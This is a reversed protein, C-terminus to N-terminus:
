KDDPLTVDIHSLPDAIEKKRMKAADAGVKLFQSQKWGESVAKYSSIIKNTEMTTDQAEEEIEIFGFQETPIHYKIKM